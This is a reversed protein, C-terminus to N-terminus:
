YQTLPTRNESKPLLKHRRNHPIIMPENTPIKKPNKVPLIFIKALISSGIIWTNRENGGTAIIGSTITHNPMPSPAFINEIEKATNKGTQSFVCRPALSIGWDNKHLAESSVRDFAFIKRETTKGATNGFIIAPIRVDIATPNIM